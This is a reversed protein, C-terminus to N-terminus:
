HFLGQVVARVCHNGRPAPGGYGTRCTENTRMKAITQQSVPAFHNGEVIQKCPRQAIDRVQFAVPAKVEKQMVHRPRDFDATRHIENQV